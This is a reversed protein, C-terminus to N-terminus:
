GGGRGFSRAAFERFDSPPRGLLARLVFPNGTFGHREYYRFMKELTAIRVADLGRERASSRWEEPPVVRIEVPTGLVEALIEAVETQSLSEPGCLEYSAGEHGAEIAARAAVEAVEELDVMGIRTGPAYPIPYVRNELISREHALVNQMYAAPRLITFPLGSELLREEVRLKNWHHPMAEIQPHLVSHYVFRRVGAASAAEIAVQGISREDPHLNPGIHYVRDAGRLAEWLVGRSRMDGVLVEVPGLARVRRVYRDRYVLARVPEGRAILARITARGTKGAAGTVLIM